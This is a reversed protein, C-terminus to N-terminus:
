VNPQGPEADQLPSPETIASDTIKPTRRLSGISIAAFAVLSAEIAGHVTQLVFSIAYATTSLGFAALDFPYGYALSLAAIAATFGVLYGPLSGIFTYQLLRFYDRHLEIGPRTGIFYFVIFPLALVLGLNVVNDILSLLDFNQFGQPGSVVLTQVERSSLIGVIEEVLPLLFAVLLVLRFVGKKQVASNLTM